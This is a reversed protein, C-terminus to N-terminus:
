FKQNQLKSESGLIDKQKLWELVSKDIYVVDEANLLPDIVRVKDPLNTLDVPYPCIKM